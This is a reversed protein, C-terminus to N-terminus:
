YFKEYIPLINIPRYESAKKPKEIKPIPIITSTRWGEPHTGKSLLDNILRTL